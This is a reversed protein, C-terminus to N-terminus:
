DTRCRSLSRSSKHSSSFSRRKISNKTKAASGFISTKKQFASTRRQFSVCAAMTWFDAQMIPIRTRLSLITSRTRRFVPPLFRPPCNGRMRCLAARGQISWFDLRAGTNILFGNVYGPFGKSPDLFNREKAAKLDEEKGGVGTFLDDSFDTAGDLLATVQFNGVKTRYYGPVQSGAQPAAHATGIELAPKLLMGGALVGSGIMFDRRDIM